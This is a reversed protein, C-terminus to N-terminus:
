DRDSPEYGPPAARLVGFDGVPRRMEFRIAAYTVAQKVEGPSFHLRQFMSEIWDVLYRFDQDNQYRDEADRYTM